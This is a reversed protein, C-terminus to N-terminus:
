PGLAQGQAHVSGHALRVPRLSSAPQQLVESGPGGEDRPVPWRPTSPTPRRTVTDEEEFGSDLLLLRAGQAARPRPQHWHTGTGPLRARLLSPPMRPCLPWSATTPQVHIGRAGGAHTWLWPHALTLERPTGAQPCVELGDPHVHMSSRPNPSSGRSSAPFVSPEHLASNPLHPCPRAPPCAVTFSFGWPLPQGGPVRGGRGRGRGLAAPASTPKQVPSGASSPHPQAALARSPRQGLTKRPSITFM